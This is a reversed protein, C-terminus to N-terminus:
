QSPAKSGAKPLKLPQELEPPQDPETTQEPETAARTTAAGAPVRCLFSLEEEGGKTEFILRSGHGGRWM